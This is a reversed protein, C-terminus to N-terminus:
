IFAFVSGKTWLRFIGRDWETQVFMDNWSIVKVCDSRIPMSLINRGILESICKWFNRAFPKWQGMKAQRLKEKYEKEDDGQDM